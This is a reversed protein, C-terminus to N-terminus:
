ILHTKFHQTVGVDCQLRFCRQDRYGDRSAMEVLWCDSQGLCSFDHIPIYMAVFSCPIYHYYRCRELQSIYVSCM